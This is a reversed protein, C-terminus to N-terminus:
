EKKLRIWASTEETSSLYASYRKDGVIALMYATNPPISGLNEAVMILDNEDSLEEVSIKIIYPVNSLRIHTFLLKKNLFLSISDGDIEANDYFHLEISDGSVPIEKTLVQKREVFKEAITKPTHAIVVPPAPSPMPPISVMGKKAPPLQPNSPTSKTFVPASPPMKPQRSVLQVSDIIDPHNAGVTFNDIVFDWEDPFGTIGTKSLDVMGKRKEPDNKAAANGELLMQGGGPCNFDAIALQPNEKAGGKREILHDDWWTVANTEADFYGKISYRRFNGNAEHYYSTGTLSDGKQIIKVEVKQKNIKGKWVGTITQAESTISAFIMLLFLCSPKLTSM